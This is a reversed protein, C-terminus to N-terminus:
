QSSAHTTMVSSQSSLFPWSGSPRSRAWSPASRAAMVPSGLGNGLGAGAGPGAGAGEGAGEGAGAGAGWGAGLGTGPITWSRSRTPSIMTLSAGCITAATSFIRHARAVDQPLHEVPRAAIDQAVQNGADHPSHGGPQQDQTLQMACLCQTEPRATVLNVPRREARAALVGSLRNMFPESVPMSHFEGLLMGM